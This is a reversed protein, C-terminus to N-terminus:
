SGTKEMIMGSVLSLLIYWATIVPVASIGWYIFALLSPLIFFYRIRNDSFRLNQFKITFMKVPLVMLVSIAINIVVLFYLDLFFMRLWETDTTLVIFGLSAFFIGSAPSPLGRFSKEDGSTNFRALRVSAFVAPLFASALV